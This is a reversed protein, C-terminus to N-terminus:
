RQRPKFHHALEAAVEAAREGYAHEELKAIQRHLKLGSERRSGGMCCRATCHMLLDPFKEAVSGGPWESMGQAHVFQEDRSLRPVAPKSKM